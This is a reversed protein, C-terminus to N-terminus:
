HWLKFKMLGGGLDITGATGNRLVTVVTDTASVYATLQMGQLDQSFSILVMDGVEAGAVTSTATTQDGAALSPPNWVRQYALPILNDDTTLFRRGLPTWLVEAQVLAEGAGITSARKIAKPDEVVSELKWDGNERVITWYEGEIPWRFLAPLPGVGIQIVAADKAVVEIRRTTPDSTVIVGTLRETQGGKYHDALGM